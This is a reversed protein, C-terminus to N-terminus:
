VVAVRECEGVGDGSSVVAEKKDGDGDSGGVM